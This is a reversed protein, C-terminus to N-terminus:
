IYVLGTNSKIVQAKSAPINVEPYGVPIFYQGNSRQGALVYRKGKYKFVTGPMYRKRNNYNRTSKRVTLVSRKRNAEKIGYTKVQQEYWDSLAPVNGPKGEMAARRNKAVTNGEYKYTRATQAHINARDHRRFQRIICCEPMETDVVPQYEFVSCAIVYADIDHDKPLYHEDRYKKTIYGNTIHTHEPYNESCWDVFRDMIQNLVSLAGYKKNTGEKIRKLREAANQSTHVATHCAECLGAMNALTDSGGKSRPVIHHAHDVSGQGCLLCKGHQYANLADKLTNFGKMPGNNYKVNKNGAQQMRVFDFINRELVVDTVPLIKALLKLLNKHTQLLQRATPTIWGEPRRRNNFRSETNIIDKLRMVGDKYGSLKRELLHKATTGLKRALRKRALREGRRSAQRFGRRERMLRPIEVNRTECKARHLLKGDERVGSIGINSRGVDLGAYVKQTVHTEPEYLLRITFPRLEVVCALKERLMRRVKGYRTTPMLPSGSM